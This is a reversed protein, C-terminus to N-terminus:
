TAYERRHSAAAAPIPPQGAFRVPPVKRFFNRGNSKPRKWLYREAASILFGFLLCQVGRRPDGQAGQGLLRLAPSRDADHRRGNGRAWWPLYPCVATSSSSQRSSTSSSNGLLVVTGVVAPLDDFPSWHAQSPASPLRCHSTIWRREPNNRRANATSRTCCFRACVCPM